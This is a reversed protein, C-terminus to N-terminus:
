RAKCCWNLTPRLQAVSEARTDYRMCHEGWNRAQMAGACIPGASALMDPMVGRGELCTGEATYWGFVPLRLWYGGGVSTNQAGLVNGRTKQGVITALKNEAAFAALMEGASNTWENVLIAVRGHFDQTRLGQTLLMVSKDAFAFRSMTGVARMFNDPMVVRPLDNREYGRELRKPPLSYGLSRRDACLHSAVRVFGLSGGINGRLDIVLRRCCADKLEMVSADVTRGFRIGLSGPFHLIKLLGVQNEIVRYSLSKPEVLPPRQKTGKRHPVDISVMRSNTGNLDAVLVSHQRGMGFEPLRLSERQWARHALLVMATPAVWSITGEVWPWGSKNTDFRVHRDFYRFKWKWLWHNEVGAMSDLWGFARTVDLPVHGKIATSRLAM